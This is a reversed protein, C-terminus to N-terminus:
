DERLARYFYDTIPKLLYNVPTREGTQIYVEVPMGAVLEQGELKEIEGDKLRIEAKYFAAGTQEDVISDDSINTIEGFIEPTTRTNLGSMRLVTEQGGFVSDRHIPEVQADVVLSSDNPVVFLVPDAPRIVSKIAHVSLDLIRGSRPARIDLRSLQEKLSLRREKLELERFELERAESISEELVSRNLRVAETDLESIQGRLQAVQSTLQGAQGRIRAAERELSLVRTAPVLGKQLLARMDVLEKEILDSQERLASLEAESGIIQDGLQEKREDLINLETELSKQQARWLSRQGRMLKEIQENQAAVELLEPDFDISSAGTQVAELRGIRAMIEFLQSEQAALESRLLTDDLKILVDGAGVIDGERIMIEGVVGGDPHQVVQRNTEVRLQGMSIVAGSLSATAAWGGFGGGLVLVFILGFRIFGGAGWGDDKRTSPGQLQMTM